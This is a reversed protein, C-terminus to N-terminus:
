AAAGGRFNRRRRPRRRPVNAGAFPAWLADGSPPAGTGESDAGAGRGSAAACAASSPLQAGSVGSRANQGVDPHSLVFEVEGVPPAPAAIEAPQGARIHQPSEPLTTIVQKAA